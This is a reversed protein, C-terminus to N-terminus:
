AKRKSLVIAGVFVVLLLVSVLEFALLQETLMIEGIRELTPTMGAKQRLSEIAEIMGQMRAPPFSNISPSLGIFSFGMLVFAFVPMFFALFAKSYKAFKYSFTQNEEVSDSASDENASDNSNAMLMIAFMVVLTIGVAYILVQSAAVLEAGLAFYVLALAGFCGILTFGARVLNKQLVVALAAVLVVSSLVVFIPDSLLQKQFLTVFTLPQLYTIQDTGTV